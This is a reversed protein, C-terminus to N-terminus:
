KRNKFKAGKMESTKLYKIWAGLKNGIDDTLNYLSKFKIEDLYNNDLFRYLQSKVEANSAKAVSLFQILEANGNREFGEAINDMISGSASKIQEKLKFEKSVAIDRCIIYIEKYLERALQWAEIEEIKTITAM